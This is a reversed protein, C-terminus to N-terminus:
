VQRGKCCCACLGSGHAGERLWVKVHGQGRTRCRKRESGGEGGRRGGRGRQGAGEACSLPISPM